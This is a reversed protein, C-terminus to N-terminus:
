EFAALTEQDLPEFFGASVGFGDWLGFEPVGPMPAPHLRRIEAIPKNHRCLVVVEGEEVADLYRSLHTKAELVNAKIMVMNYVLLRVLNEM